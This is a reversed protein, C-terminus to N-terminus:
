LLPPCFKLFSFQMNTPLKVVRAAWEEEDITPNPNKRSAFLTALFQQEGEHFPQSSYLCSKAHGVQMQNFIGEDNGIMQNGEVYVIRSDFAVALHYPTIPLMAMGIQTTNPRLVFLLAPNDSTLIGNGPSPSLIRVRWYQRLHQFVDFDSIDGETRGLLLERYLLGARLEYAYFGEKGTKNEYIANRAHFDFIALILSFYDWSKPPKREKILRVCRDYAAESEWFRKEAAAPNKKSYFYDEGCQSEVAVYKMSKGDFRWLFAKRGLDPTASFNKLYLAPLYHQRKFPPM